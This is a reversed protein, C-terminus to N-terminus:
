LTPRLRARVSPFGEGDWERGVREGGVSGVSPMVLPLGFRSDLM